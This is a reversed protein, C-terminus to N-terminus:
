IKEVKQFPRAYAFRALKQPQHYADLGSIAVTQAANLDLYGDKAILTEPVLLQRISGLVLLTNNHKIPIEEVFDMGIKVVAEKVFPAIIDAQYEETLNTQEFESIDGDYKAATHHADAIIEQNIHNITYQKTAKINEYTNRLVTQPRLVMGILPPNSGFHTVSSFVAVNTIGDASKTGILNASKYGTVANILNIRYLRNMAEIDQRSIKKYSNSM